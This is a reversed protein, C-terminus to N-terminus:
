GCSAVGSSSSMVQYSRVHSVARTLTGDVASM